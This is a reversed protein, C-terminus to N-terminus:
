KPPLDVTLKKWYFDVHKLMAKWAKDPSRAKVAEFIEWHQKPDVDPLVSYHFRRQAIIESRLSNHLKVLLRNGSMEVLATHFNDHIENITSGGEEGKLIGELRDISEPTAREAAWYAAQGELLRRVEVLETYSFESFMAQSFQTGNLVKDATPSLFTGQGPRAELVGSHGLAKLVERMCARSVGFTEALTKEGPLKSGPAWQKEKIATVMQEMIDAHLTSRNAPRL